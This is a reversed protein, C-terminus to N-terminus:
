HHRFRIKQRITTTMKRESRKPERFDFFNSLVFEINENKNEFIRRKLLTARCRLDRLPVVFAYRHCLARIKRRFSFRGSIMMKQDMSLIWCYCSANDNHKTKTITGVFFLYRFFFFVNIAFQHRTQITRRRKRDTLCPRHTSSESFTIMVELWQDFRVFRQTSSFFVFSAARDACLDRPFIFCFKSIMRQKM